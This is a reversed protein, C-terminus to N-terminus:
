AYRQMQAPKYSTVPLSLVHNYVYQNTGFSLNLGSLISESTQSYSASSGEPSFWCGNSKDLAHYIIRTSTAYISHSTYCLAECWTCIITYQVLTTHWM